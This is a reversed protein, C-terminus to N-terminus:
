RRHRMDYLSRESSIRQSLWSNFGVGRMSQAMAQREGATWNRRAPRGLDGLQPVVKSEFLAQLDSIERELRSTTSTSTASANDRELRLTYLYFIISGAVTLLLLLLVKKKHRLIEICMTDCVCCYCLRGFSLDVKPKFRM